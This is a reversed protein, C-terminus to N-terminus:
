PGRFIQAARRYFGAVRTNEEKYQPYNKMASESTRCEASAVLAKASDRFNNTIKANNYHGQIHEAAHSFGKGLIELCLHKIKDEKTM